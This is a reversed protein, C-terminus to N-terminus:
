LCVYRPDFLVFATRTRKELVHALKWRVKRIVFSVRKDNDNVGMQEREGKLDDGWGTQRAILVFVVTNANMNFCNPYNRWTFM